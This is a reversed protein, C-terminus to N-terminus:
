RWTLGILESLRLGHRYAMLVMLPDRENTAHRIIAEVKAADLPPQGIPKGSRTGNLRARIM